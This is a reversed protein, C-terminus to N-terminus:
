SQDPCYATTSANVMAAGQWPLFTPDNALVQQVADTRTHGAAVYGCVRHAGAETKPWSLIHMGAIQLVLGRFVQDPDPPAAATPAPEAAPPPAAQPTATVTVTPAPTPTVTVTAPAPPAAAAPTMWVTPTANNSAPESRPAEERKSAAFLAVMGILLVVACAFVIPAAAAFAARWSADPVAVPEVDNTVTTTMMWRTTTTMWRRSAPRM